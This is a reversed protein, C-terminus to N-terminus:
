YIRRCGRLHTFPVPAPRIYWSSSSVMRSAEVCGRTRSGSSRRYGPIHGLHMFFACFCSFVLWEGVSEEVIVMFLEYGHLGTRKVLWGSKGM